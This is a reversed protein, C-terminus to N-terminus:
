CSFLAAAKGRHQLALTEPMSCDRSQVAASLMRCEARSQECVVLYDTRIILIIYFNYVFSLSDRVWGRFMRWGICLKEITVCAYLHLPM